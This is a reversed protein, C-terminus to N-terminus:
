VIVKRILSKSIIDDKGKFMVEIFHIKLKSRGDQGFELLM